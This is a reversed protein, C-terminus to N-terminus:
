RVRSGSRHVSILLFSPAGIAEARSRGFSARFELEFNNALGPAAAVLRDAGDFSSGALVNCLTNVSSRALRRLIDRPDGLAMERMLDCVIGIIGNNFRSLLSVGDRDLIGCDVMRVKDARCTLKLSKALVVSGLFLFSATSASSLSAIAANFFGFLCNAPCDMMSVTSRRVNPAICGRLIDICKSTCVCSKDVLADYLTWSVLEFDKM